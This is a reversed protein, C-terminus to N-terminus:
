KHSMSSNLHLFDHTYMIDLGFRLLSPCFPTLSRGSCCSSAHVLIMGLRIPVQTLVTEHSVTGMIFVTFSCDIIMQLSSVMFKPSVPLCSFNYYSSFCPSLLFSVGVFQGRVAVCICEQTHVHMLMYTCASVCMCVCLNILM